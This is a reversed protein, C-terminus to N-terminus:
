QPQFLSRLDGLRVTLGGGGHWSIIDRMGWGCLEQVGGSVNVGDGGQGAQALLKGSKRLLFKGQFRVQLKVLQSSPASVRPPHQM